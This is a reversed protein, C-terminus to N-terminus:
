TGAHNAISGPDQIVRHGGARAGALPQGAAIAPVEGLAGVLVAAVIAEDVVVLYM